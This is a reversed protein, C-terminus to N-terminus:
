AVHHVEELTQVFGSLVKIVIILELLLLLYSFLIDIQSIFCCFFLEVFIFIRGNQSFDPLDTFILIDHLLDTNPTIFEFLKSRKIM